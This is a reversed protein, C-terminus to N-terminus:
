LTNRVGKVSLGVSPVKVQAVTLEPEPMSSDSVIHLTLHNRRFSDPALDDSRRPWKPINELICFQLGNVRVCLVREMPSASDQSYHMDILM